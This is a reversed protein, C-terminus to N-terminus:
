MSHFSPSWMEGEYRRMHLLRGQLIFYDLDHGREQYLEWVRQEMDTSYEPLVKNALVKGARHIGPINDTSDGTIMQRWFNLDAEEPSILYSRQQDYNYHWGPTNDLDKDVSVICTQEWDAACQLWSVRDDVEEGDVVVTPYNQQLYERLQQEHIPRSSASRHGKYDPYLDYRFNGQGGIFITYDDNVSNDVIRKLNGISHSLPGAVKDQEYTVEDVDTNLGHNTIQGNVWEQAEARYKCRHVPSNNIYVDWYRDENSCGAKFIMSDADVLYYM